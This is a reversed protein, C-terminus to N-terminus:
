KSEKLEAEVYPKKEDEQANRWMEGLLRSIDTNNMDPHSAKVSKRTNLSFKLFASMPRKPALPHKKARRKPLSDPTPIFRAKAILVLYPPLLHSLRFFKCRM